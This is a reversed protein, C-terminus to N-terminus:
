KLLGDIQTKAPVIHKNYNKITLNLKPYLLINQCKYFVEDYTLGNYINQDLNKHLINYVKYLFFVDNAAYKIM